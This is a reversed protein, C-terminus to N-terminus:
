KKFTVKIPYELGFNDYLRVWKTLDGKPYENTPIMAHIGVHVVEDKEIMDVEAIRGGRELDRVLNWTASQNDITARAILIKTNTLNTILLESEFQILKQRTFENYAQHWRNAPAVSNQAITVTFLAKMRHAVDWAIYYFIVILGIVMISLAFVVPLGWKQTYGLVIPIAPGFVFALIARLKSGTFFEVILEIVPNQNPKTMPAVLLPSFLEYSIREQKVM